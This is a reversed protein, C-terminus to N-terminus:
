GWWVGSTLWCWRQIVQSSSLCFGQGLVDDRAKDMPLPRGTESDIFHVSCGHKWRVSQPPVNLLFWTISCYHLGCSDRLSSFRRQPDAISLMQWLSDPSMKRRRRGQRLIHGFVASVTWEQLLNVHICCLCWAELTNNKGPKWTNCRRAKVFLDQSLIISHKKRCVPIGFYTLRKM